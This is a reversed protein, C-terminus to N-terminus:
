KKLLTPTFAIMVWAWSQTANPDGGKIAAMTETGFLQSYGAKLMVDKALKKVLVLDVETGMSSPLLGTRGEPNEYIEVPSLFHHVHALLTGAKGLGIKAKIYPDILGVTRGMQASPNGVYYYDMLGYFKHNTGYLPSFASNTGADADLSTGSVYDGGVTLSLKKSVPVTANAAVLFANLTNGAPDTGFQYYAEGELAVKGAKSKIYTGATQSFRVFGGDISDFAQTGNNLFLLSLGTKGMQRHYWAFQMTKYNGAQGYFTSLLKAFEPTNADQNFAAGLHFESLSDQYTFLALDHSRAQQAWGLNGLFRANDYNLEQRGV